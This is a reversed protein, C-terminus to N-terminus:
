RASVSEEAHDIFYKDFAGKHFKVLPLRQRIRYYVIKMCSAQLERANIRNHAVSLAAAELGIQEEPSATVPSSPM